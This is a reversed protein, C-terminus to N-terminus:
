QASSMQQLRKALQLDAPAVTVRKGHIACLNSQEFLDTAFQEVAEQLANFASNQVRWEKSDTDQLVERVLRQFPAKRLLNTTCKQIKRIEQLAAKGPKRRRKQKEAGAGGVVQRKSVTVVEGDANVVNKIHQKRPAKGALKAEAAKKESKRTAQKNRGM